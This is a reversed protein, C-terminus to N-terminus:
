LYFTYLQIRPQFAVLLTCNFSLQTAVLKLFRKCLSFILYFCIVFYYYFLFYFLLLLLLLLLLLHPFPVPYPDAFLLNPPDRLRQHSHTRTFKQMLTM